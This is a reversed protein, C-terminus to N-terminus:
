TTHIMEILWDGILLIVLISGSPVFMTREFWPLRSDRLALLRYPIQLILTLALLPGLRHLRFSDSWHGHALHILSRTLGCAPCDVHLIRRAACLQPLPRDSRGTWAIRQDPRVVLFPLVALVTCCGVLVLAHWRQSPSTEQRKVTM